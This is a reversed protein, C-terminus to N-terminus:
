KKRALAVVSLGYPLGHKVIWPGEFSLIKALFGNLRGPPLALDSVPERKRLIRQTMRKLLAFPFLVTNAYSIRQIELGASELLGKVQLVTYRRATHIVEDHQGRLWDYAPLRLLVHGGKVLVRSFERIAGSDEPVSSEYLVDFSTVLDFTSSGFPLDLVSSQNLNQAGRSKCLNLAIDSIDAGTVNGYEALYTTLAAGTGCGADLIKLKGTPPCYQDLIAETISRMGLYWWHDLEVRFMLDYEKPDL